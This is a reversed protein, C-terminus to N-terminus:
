PPEKTNFRWNLSAQHRRPSSHAPRDIAGAREVQSGCLGLWTLWYLHGPPTSELLTKREHDTFPDRAENAAARKPLARTPYTIDVDEYRDKADAFIAKILAMKKRISQASQAPLGKSKAEAAADGIALVRLRRDKTWNAPLCTLADMFKVADSKTYDSVPRDAGVLDIFDRIVARFMATREDNLERACRDLYADAHASLTPTDDNIVPEIDASV